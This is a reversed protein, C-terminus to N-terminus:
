PATSSAFNAFSIQLSGRAEVAKGATTRGRLTIEAVVTLIGAGSFQSTDANSAFTTLNKLPPELKAQHRVVVIALEAEGNMVVQTAVPGTIRYPVDVGEQNRGDTRFYRVEYSQLLVDNAFGSIQTGTGLTPNKSILQVSITANDNFVPDLDSLLFDGSEGGGGARGTIKTIRLIVPAEGQDAFEPVCAALTLAVVPVLWSAKM